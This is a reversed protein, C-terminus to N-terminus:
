SVEQHELPCQGLKSIGEHWSKFQLGRPPNTICDPHDYYHGWSALSHAFEHTAITAIYDVVEDSSYDGGRMKSLIPDNVLFPTTSVFTSQGYQGYSNVKMGNTIGGRISTHIGPELKEISAVIQNTVVFDYEKFNKLLGGWHIYENFDNESSIMPQGDSLKISKLKKYNDFHLDSVLEMLPRFEWVESPLENKPIRAAESIFQLLKPHTFNEINNRKSYRKMLADTLLHRPSSSSLRNDKVLRYFEQGREGLRNRGEEFFEEISITSRIDFSVTINLHEKIRKSIVKLLKQFQAETLSPFRPNIVRVTNLTIPKPYGFSIKQPNSTGIVKYTFYLLFGGFFILTIFYVQKRTYPSKKM